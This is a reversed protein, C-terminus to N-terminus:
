LTCHQWLGDNRRHKTRTGRSQRAVMTFLEGSSITNDNILLAIKKPFELTKKLDLTDTTKGSENYMIGFKSKRAEIEKDWEKKTAEDLQDYAEKEFTRFWLDLNSQTMRM